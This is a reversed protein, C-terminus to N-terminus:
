GAMAPCRLASLVREDRRTSCILGYDAREGADPDVGVGARALLERLRPLFTEHSPCGDFTWLEIRM